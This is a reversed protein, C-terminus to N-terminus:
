LDELEGAEAVDGHLYLRIFGLGGEGLTKVTLLKAVDPGVAFLRGAAHPTPATVQVFVTRLLPVLRRSRSAAIALQRLTFFWM